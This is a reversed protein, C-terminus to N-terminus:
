KIQKRQLFLRNKIRQALTLNIIAASKAHALM